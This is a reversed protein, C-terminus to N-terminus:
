LRIEIDATKKKKHAHSSSVKELLIGENHNSDDSRDDIKKREIPYFTDRESACNDRQESYSFMRMPNSASSSSSSNSKMRSTAALLQQRFHALNSEFQDIRNSQKANHLEVQKIDLELEICVAKNFVKESITKLENLSSHLQEFVEDAQLIEANESSFHTLTQTTLEIKNSLKNLDAQCKNATTINDQHVLLNNSISNQLLVMKSLVERKDKVQQVKKRQSQILHELVPDMREIFVVPEYFSLTSKVEPVDLKAQNVQCHIESHKGGCTNCVHRDECREHDLQANCEDTQYPICLESKYSPSDNLYYNVIINKDKLFFLFSNDTPNIAFSSPQHEPAFDMILKICWQKLQANYILRKLTNTDIFVYSGDNDAVMHSSYCRLPLSDALFRKDKPVVGNEWETILALKISQNIEIECFLKLEADCVILTQGNSSMCISTPNQNEVHTGTLLQSHSIYNFPLYLTSDVDSLDLNNLEFFGVLRRQIDLVWLRNNIEDLCLQRPQFEQDPYHKKIPIIQSQENFLYILNSSYDCLIILRKQLFPLVERISNSIFSKSHQQALDYMDATKYERSEREISPELHHLQNDGKSILYLDYSNTGMAIFSEEAQLAANNTISIPKNKWEWGAGIRNRYVKTKQRNFKIKELFPALEPLALFDEAKDWLTNRRYSFRAQSNFILRVKHGKFVLSALFPSFDIDGSVLCVLDSELLTDQKDKTGPIINIPTNTLHNSIVNDVAEKKESEVIVVNIPLIAQYKEFEAALNKQAAAIYVTAQRIERKCDIQNSLSFNKIATLYEKIYEQPVHINQWDIFIVIYAFKKQQTKFHNLRWSRSNTLYIATDIQQQYYDRGKFLLELPLHIENKDNLQLFPVTSFQNFQCHQLSHKENCNTCIHSNTHLTNKQLEHKKREQNCPEGANWEQCPYIPSIPLSILEPHPQEFQLYWTVLRWLNFVGKFHENWHKNTASETDKCQATQKKVAYVIKNAELEFPTLKNLEMSENQRNKIRKDLQNKLDAYEQIFTKKRDIFLHTPKNHSNIFMFSNNDILWKNICEYFQEPRSSALIVLMGENISRDYNDTLELITQVNRINLSPLQYGTKIETKELKVYDINYQQFDGFLKKNTSLCGDDLLVFKLHTCKFFKAHEVITLIFHSFNIRSIASAWSAWDIIVVGKLLPSNDLCPTSASSSSASQQSPNM